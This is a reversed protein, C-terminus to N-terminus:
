AKPAEPPPTTAPKNELYSQAAKAGFVAILIKVDNDTFGFVENHYIVMYVKCILMAVLVLLMGVRMTSPVGDGDSVLAKLNNM